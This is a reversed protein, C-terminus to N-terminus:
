RAYVGKQGGDGDAGDAGAGTVGADLMWTWQDYVLVRSSWVGQGSPKIVRSSWEAQGRRGRYM